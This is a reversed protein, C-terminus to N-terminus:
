MGYGSWSLYGGAVLAIIGSIKIWSPNNFNKMLDRLVTKSLLMISVGELILAWGMLSIIIETPTNWLNHSLVIALGAITELISDLFLFLGDNHLKKFLDIYWKEKILFSLSLLVMLPGMLQALFLTTSNM